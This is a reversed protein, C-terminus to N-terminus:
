GGKGYKWRYLSFGHKGDQKTSIINYIINNEKGERLEKIRANYQYAFLRLSATPVFDQNKLMKLIKKRQTNHEFTEITHLTQQM